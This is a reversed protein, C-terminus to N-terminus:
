RPTPEGGWTISIPGTTDGSLAVRDGYAKPARRAATWKLADIAVRAENAGIDGREVAEALANVRDADAHAQTERARAFAHSFTESEDLWKYVTSFSPHGDQACYSRLSNGMSIWDCIEDAVTQTFTTKGGM